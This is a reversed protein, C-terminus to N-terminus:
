SEVVARLRALQREMGDRTYPLVTHPRWRSWVRGGKGIFYLDSDDMSGRKHEPHTEWDNAPQKEYVDDPAGDARALAVERKIYGKPCAWYWGWAVIVPYEQLDQETLKDM